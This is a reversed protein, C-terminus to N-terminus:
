SLGYPLSTFSATLNLTQSQAYVEFNDCLGEPSQSKKKPKYGLGVM